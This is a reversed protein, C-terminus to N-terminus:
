MTRARLSRGALYGVKQVTEGFDRGVMTETIGAVAPQARQTGPSTRRTKTRPDRGSESVVFRRRPWPLSTPSRFITSNGGYTPGVLPKGYTESRMFRSSGPMRM